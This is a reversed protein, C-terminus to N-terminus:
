RPVPCTYWLMEAEEEENRQVEENDETNIVDEEAKKVKRRM